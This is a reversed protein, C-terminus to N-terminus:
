TFDKEAFSTPLYMPVICSPVASMMKDLLSSTSGQGMTLKANSHMKGSIWTNLLWRITSSFRSGDVTGYQM